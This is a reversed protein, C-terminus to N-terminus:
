TVMPCCLGYAILRLNISIDSREKDFRCFFHTSQLFRTSISFDDMVHFHALAAIHCHHYLRIQLMQLVKIMDWFSKSVIFSGHEDNHASETKKRPCIRTIMFVKILSGPIM